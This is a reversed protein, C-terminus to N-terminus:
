SPSAQIGSSWSAIKCLFNGYDWTERITAGLILPMNILCELLNGVCVSESENSLRKRKPCRSKKHQLDGCIFCGQAVPQGCKHGPLQCLNCSDCHQKSPKVCRKCKFCHFYTRGDKSTCADCEPCHQNERSVFRKCKACFKYGESEPLVVREPPVNTFIRVPSGHKSGGSDRSKFDAHNDYDVKYDLMTFDPFKEIIRQEMFYPFFWLVYVDQEVQLSSRIDKLIRRLNFALSDILGGFPPDMVIMIRSIDKSLFSKYNDQATKGDFFHHNFMNYRCLAELSHFQQLRPDLDLLFSGIHPFSQCLEEHIRPAGVCLVKTVKLDELLSVTFDVSKDSFLYQANTSNGSLPTLFKTPSRLDQDSLQHSLRHDKHDCAEGILLEGCTLCCQRKNGPNEQLKVLRSYLEAHSYKPQSDAIIQKWAETKAASIKDGKKLYFPCDNRERNASCAYFTEVTTPDKTNLREFLMMPGHPCTPTEADLLYEPLVEVGTGRRAM